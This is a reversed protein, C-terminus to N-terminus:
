GGLAPNVVSDFLTKVQPVFNDVVSEVPDSQQELEAQQSFGDHQQVNSSPETASAETVVETTSTEDELQQMVRVLTEEDLETGGANQERLLTDLTREDYNQENFLIQVINVGFFSFFVTKM